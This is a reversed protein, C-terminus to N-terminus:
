FLSVQDPQQSQTKLRERAIEIYCPDIEIGTFEAIGLKQAAIASSGIGLFPDLM